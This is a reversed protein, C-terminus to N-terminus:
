VARLSPGQGYLHEIVPEDRYVAMTAMAAAMAHTEAGHTTSLLFVRPFETQSLGGLQM